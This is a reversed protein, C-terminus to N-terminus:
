TGNDLRSIFRGTHAWRFHGQPLAAHLTNTHRSLQVFSPPLGESTQQYSSAEFWDLSSYYLTITTLTLHFPKLLILDPIFYFPSHFRVRSSTDYAHINVDFTLNCCQKMFLGFSSRNVTQITNPM